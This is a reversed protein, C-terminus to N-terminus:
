TAAHRGVWRLSEPKHSLYPLLMDDQVKVRSHPVLHLHLLLGLLTEKGWPEFHWGARMEKPYETPWARAGDHVSNVFIGVDAVAIADAQDFRDVNNSHYYTLIDNGTHSPDRKAIMAFLLFPVRRSHELKDPPPDDPNGLLFSGTMVRRLRKVSIGQTLGRNLEARDSIDGKVEVCADVGDALLPRFKGYSDVMYPHAPNCLVCDISNSQGGLSDRIQGKTLRYPFPFFRELFQRTANERFEAVEQPTGKGAISSMEFSTRLSAAEHRLIQKLAEM